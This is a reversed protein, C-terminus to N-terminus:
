SLSVLIVGATIILAGLLLQVSVKEKLIVAAAATVIIVSLGQFPYVFSLDFHQLLGLTLFFSVTMSAIGPLFFRYFNAGFGTRHSHDMAHKFFFQGAVFSLMAIVLLPFAVLRM